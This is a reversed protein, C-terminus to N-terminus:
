GGAEPVKVCHDEAARIAGGYAAYAQYEERAPSELHGEGQLIVCFTTSFAPSGAPVLNYAVLSYRM